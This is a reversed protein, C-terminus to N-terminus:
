PQPGQLCPEAIAQHDLPLLGAPRAPDQDVAAGAPGVLRRQTREEGIDGRGATPDVHRDQAVDVVVVDQPQEVQELLEAVGPGIAVAARQRRDVAQPVVGEGARDAAGVDFGPDTRDQTAAATDPRGHGADRAHQAADSLTVRQSGPGEGEPDREVGPEGAALDEDALALRGAEVREPHRHDPRTARDEIAKSRLPQGPQGAMGPSPHRPGAGPRGGDREILADRVQRADHEEDLEVPSADQESPVGAGVLDEVTHALGAREVGPAATVDRDQLHGVVAADPVDGGVEEAGDRGVRVHDRRVAPVAVRIEARELEDDLDGALLPARDFERHGVLRCRGLPEPRAMRGRAVPVGDAGQPRADRGEREVCPHSAPRDRVSTAFAARRGVSWPDAPVHRSM